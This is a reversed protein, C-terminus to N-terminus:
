KMARGGGSLRYLQAPRFAGTRMQGEVIEVCDSTALRRRFSAKDLKRGLVIGATAQLDSLTFPETLFGSPFNLAQVETRLAEIARGILAGHDFALNPDDTAEQADVWKLEAMRKGPTVALCGPAAVCRYVLSLAWPARPDRTPGGVAALQSATPLGIGLRESAVRQAAADLNVDKDIRLVGGPLAWRGPHPPEARRGLLVWLKGNDITLVALEIRVFPM